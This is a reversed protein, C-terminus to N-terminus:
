ETGNTPVTGAMLGAQACDDLLCTLTSPVLCSNAAFVCARQDAFKGFTAVNVQDARGPEGCISLRMQRALNHVIGGDFRLNRAAKDFGIRTTGVRDHEGARM